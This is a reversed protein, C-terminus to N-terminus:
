SCSSKLFPVELSWSLSLVWASELGSIENSEGGKFATHELSSEFYGLITPSILLHVSDRLLKINPCILSTTDWSCDLPLFSLKVREKSSSREVSPSASPMPKLTLHSFLQTMANPSRIFAHGEIQAEKDESWWNLGLLIEQILLAFSVLDAM